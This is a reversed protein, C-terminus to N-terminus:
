GDRHEIAGPESGRRRITAGWDKKRTFPDTPIENLYHGNVLDQLTQPAQEKGLTYADIADRMM